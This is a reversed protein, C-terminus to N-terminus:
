ILVIREKKQNKKEVQFFDYQENTIVLDHSGVWCWSAQKCARLQSPIIHFSISHRFSVFLFEIEGLGESKQIRAHAQMHQCATAEM